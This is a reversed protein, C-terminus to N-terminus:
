LLAPEWSGKLKDHSRIVSRIQDVTSAEEVQDTSYTINGSWNTMKEKSSLAMAPSALAAKIFQRKTVNPDYRLAM